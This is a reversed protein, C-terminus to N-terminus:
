KSIYGVPRGSPQGNPTAYIYTRSASAGCFSPQTGTTQCADNRDYMYALGNVMHGCGTLTLTLVLLLYKM